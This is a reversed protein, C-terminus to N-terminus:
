YEMGYYSQVTRFSNGTQGTGRATVRFNSTIRGPPQGGYGGGINVMALPNQSWQGLYKIIFKPNAAINALDLNLETAPEWAAEELYDPDPDDDDLLSATTGDFMAPSASDEVIAEASRLGAEAAQFTLGAERLNGAMAMETQTGRMSTIGLMTMAVLIILSIILAAGQQQHKRYRAM